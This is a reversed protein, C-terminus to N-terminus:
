VCRGGKLGRKVAESLLEGLVEELNIEGAEIEVDEYSDERFVDLLLNTTYVRECEPTLGTQVGYEVLKKINESLM